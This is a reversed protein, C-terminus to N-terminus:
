PKKGAEELFECDDADRAATATSSRSSAATPPRRSSRRFTRRDRLAAPARRHRRPKETRARATWSARRCSPTTSRDAIAPDRGTATSCSAPACWAATFDYLIPKGSARALAAAKERPQWRVLGVGDGASRDLLGDRRAVRARRAVWLLIPSLARSPSAAVAAPRLGTWVRVGKPLLGRRGARSAARSPSSGDAWPKAPPGHGGRFAAEWRVRCFTRSPPRAAKALARGDSAPRSASATSFAICLFLYGLSTATARSPVDVVVAIPAAVQRRRAARRAAIGRCIAAARLAGTGCCVSRSRGRRRPRWRSSRRRVRGPRRAADSWTSPGASPGALIMQLAGSSADKSVAGAAIM